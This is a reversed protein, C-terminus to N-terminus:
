NQQITNLNCLRSFAKPLFKLIDTAIMCYSTKEIAAMEGAIGQLYVGLLSANLIPIQQSVLASIIGTLIDGSGATAMGPDGSPLIYPTNNKSFIITPAGKVVLIVDYTNTFDICRSIFEKENIENEISLLRMMEKRHPTLVCNKPIKNLNGKSLYYLADADIVFPKDLNMLIESLFSFTKKERGIGPGLFISKAKSCMEIVENIEKEDYTFHLIEDALTAMENDIEKPVILKVMGAGSRLSALGSMKAAGSMGKSGAIGVVYGAEYKHRKRNIRPLLNHLTEETPLFFDEKAQSIYKKSLGIDAYILKGVHNWGNEIFFGTKPLSFYVTKTAYIAEKSILGTNGDLGSPIDISIIPLKSLNALHITSFLIGDIDKNFGTGLLGDIIIGEKPIIIEKEETIFDVIGGEKRFRDCFMRNLHSCSSFPFIHLARVQYGKKLLIIGAVYADAGNNGRGVLLLVKKAIKKNEIHKISSIAVKEGAALMLKEESIGEDFAMKEIRKMERSSIVKIGEM